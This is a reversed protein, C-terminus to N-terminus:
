VSRWGGRSGRQSRRTPNEPSDLTEHNDCCSGDALRHRGVIRDDDAGAVAAAYGCGAERAHAQAHRNELLAPEPPGAVKRGRGLGPALCRPQRAARRLQAVRGPEVVERDALPQGHEARGAEAAARQDVGADHKSGTEVSQALGAPRFRNGAITEQEFPSARASCMSPTPGTGSGSRKALNAPMRLAASAEPRATCNGDM